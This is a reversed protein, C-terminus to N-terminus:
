ADREVTSADVLELGHEGVFSLARAGDASVAAEGGNAWAWGPGLVLDAIARSAAEVASDDAVDLFATWPNSTPNHPARTRASVHVSM